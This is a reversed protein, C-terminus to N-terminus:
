ARTCLTRVRMRSQYRYFYRSLPSYTHLDSRRPARWEQEWRRKLVLGRARATGTKAHFWEDPDYNRCFEESVQDRASGSYEAGTPVWGYSQGLSLLYNWTEKHCDFCEPPDGEHESQRVMEVIFVMVEDHNYGKRMGRCMARFDVINM